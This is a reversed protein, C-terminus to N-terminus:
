GPGSHGIYPRRLQWACCVFYKTSWFIQGWLVHDSVFECVVSNCTKISFLRLQFETRQRPLAPILVSGASAYYSRLRTAGHFIPSRVPAPALWPRRSFIPRQMKLPYRALYVRFTACIRRFMDLLNISILTRKNPFYITIFNRMNETVYEATEISCM